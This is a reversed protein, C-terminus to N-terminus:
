GAPEMKGLLRGDPLLVNRFDAHMRQSICRNAPGIREAIIPPFHWDFM